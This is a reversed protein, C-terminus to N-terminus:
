YFGIGKVVCIEIQIIPDPFFVRPNALMRLCSGLPFYPIHFLIFFKKKKFINELTVM